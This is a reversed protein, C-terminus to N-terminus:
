DRLICLIRYFDILLSELNIYQSYHAAISDSAAQFKVILTISLAM